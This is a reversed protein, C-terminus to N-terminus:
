SRPRTVKTLRVSANGAFISEDSDKVLVVTEGGALTMTHTDSGSKLSLLYATTANTNVARVTKANDLTTAAGSTTPANIETGQPKYVQTM